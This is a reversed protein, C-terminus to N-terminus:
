LLSYQDQMSAPETTTYTKGTFMMNVGDITIGRLTEAKMIVAIEVLVNNDFWQSAVIFDDIDVTYTNSIYTACEEPTKNEQIMSSINNIVTLTQSHCKITPVGGEYNTSMELAACLSVADECLFMRIGDSSM